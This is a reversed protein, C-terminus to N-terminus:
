AGETRPMREVVAVSGARFDRTSPRRAPPTPGGSIGSSGGIPTVAQDAFAALAASGVFRSRREASARAPLVRQLPAELSVTPAATVARGKVMRRSDDFATIGIM